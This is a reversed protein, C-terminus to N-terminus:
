LGLMEFAEEISTIIWYKVGKSEVLDRCKTEGETLKKGPQKIEVIYTKGQHVVLIDFANKLQYTYIIGAGAAKLATVIEKQNKDVKAARRM